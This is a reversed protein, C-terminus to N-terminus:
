VEHSVPLFVPKQTLCAPRDGTGYSFNTNKFSILSTFPLPYKNMDEILQLLPAFWNGARPNNFFCSWYGVPALIMLHPRPGKFKFGFKEQAEQWIEKKNAEVLACYALGELLARLPTDAKGGGKQDVKLEIVCPIEGDIVGFLDIKGVGKDNQRAKLPFQYDIIKLKRNGPLLFTKGKQCENFLAGALHEEKRNSNSSGGSFIDHGVFYEKEREHRRPAVEMLEKYKQALDSTDLDKAAEAFQTLNQVPKCNYLEVLSLNKLESGVM